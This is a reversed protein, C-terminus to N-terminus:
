YAINKKYRSLHLPTKEKIYYIYYMKAANKWQLFYECINCILQGNPGRSKPEKLM